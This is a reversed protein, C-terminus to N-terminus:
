TNSSHSLPIYVVTSDSLAIRGQSLWFSVRAWQVFAYEQAFSFVNEIGAKSDGALVPPLAFKYREVRIPNRADARLPARRDPDGDIAKAAESVVWESSFLKRLM